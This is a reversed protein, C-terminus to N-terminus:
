NKALTAYDVRRRTSNSSMSLKISKQLAVYESDRMSFSLPIGIKLISQPYDIGRHIEDKKNEIIRTTKEEEELYFTTNPDWDLSEVMLGIRQCNYHEDM